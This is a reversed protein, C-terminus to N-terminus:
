YKAKLNLTVEMYNPQATEGKESRGIMSLVSEVNSSYNKLIHKELRQATEVSQTLASVGVRFIDQDPEAEIESFLGITEVSHSAVELKAKAM